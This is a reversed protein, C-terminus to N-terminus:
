LIGGSFSSSVSHFNKRDRIFLIFCQPVIVLGPFQRPDIQDQGGAIELRLIQTEENRHCVAGKKIDMAVMVAAIQLVRGFATVTDLVTKNRHFSQTDKAKSSRHDVIFAEIRIALPLHFASDTFEASLDTFGASHIDDQCMCRYPSVSVLFIDRVSPVLGEQFQDLFVPRCNEDVPVDVLAIGAAELPAEAAPICLDDIGGPTINKIIRATILLRHLNHM